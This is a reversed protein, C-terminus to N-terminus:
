VPEEVRWVNLSGHRKAVPIQRGGEEIRSPLRMLGLRRVVVIVVVVGRKRGLRGRSWAVLLVLLEVSARHAEELSPRLMTALRRVSEGAGIGSYGSILLLVLVLLRLLGVVVQVDPAPGCYRGHSGAAQTLWDRSLGLRHREGTVTAVKWRFGRARRRLRCWHVVAVVM